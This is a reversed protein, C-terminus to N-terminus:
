RSYTTVPQVNNRAESTVHKAGLNISKMRRLGNSNEDNPVEIYGHEQVEKKLPALDQIAQPEIVVMRTM